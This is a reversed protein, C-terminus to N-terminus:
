NCKGVPCNNMHNNYLSDGIIIDGNFLKNTINYIQSYFSYILNCNLKNSSINLAKLNDAVIHETNITKTYLNSITANDINIVNGDESSEIKFDGISGKDALLNNCTINNVYLLKNNFYNDGIYLGDSTINNGIITNAVLENSIHIDSNITNSSITIGKIHGFTINNEIFYNSLWKKTFSDNLTHHITTMSHICSCNTNNSILSNGLQTTIFHFYIIAVLIIVQLLCICLQFYSTNNTTIIKRPSLSNNSEIEIIELQPNRNPNYGNYTNFPINNSFDMKHIDMNTLEPKNVNERDDIDLTIEDTDEELCNESLSSEENNSFPQYNDSKPSETKKYFVPSEVNNHSLFMKQDVENDLTINNDIHTDKGDGIHEDKTEKLNTDEVEVIIEKDQNKNVNTNITDFEIDM